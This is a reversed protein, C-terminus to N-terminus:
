SGHEAKCFEPRQNAMWDCRGAAPIVRPCRSPQRNFISAANYQHAYTQMIRISKLPFCYSFLQFFLNRKEVPKPVLHAKMLM